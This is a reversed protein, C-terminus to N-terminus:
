ETEVTEFEVTCDEQASDQLCRVARAADVADRIQLMSKCNPCEIAPRTATLPLTVATACKRCRVILAKFDKPETIHIHRTM